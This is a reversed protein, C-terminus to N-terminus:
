CRLRVPTSTRSMTDTSQSKGLIIQVLNYPSAEYYKDQMAPNIKDYPQTIVEGASVKSLNYRLAHFPSIDAM